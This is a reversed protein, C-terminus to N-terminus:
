LDVVKDVMRIVVEVSAEIVVVVLFVSYISVCYWGCHCLDFENM